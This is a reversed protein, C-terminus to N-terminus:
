KIVKTSRVSKVFQPGKKPQQEVREPLDIPTDKSWEDFTAQDMKGESVMKTFKQRQAESKFPM